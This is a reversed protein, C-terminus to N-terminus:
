CQAPLGTFKELLNKTFAHVTCPKLTWIFIPIWIFKPNFDKDQFFMLKFDQRSTVFQSHKEFEEEGNKQSSGMVMLGVIFM